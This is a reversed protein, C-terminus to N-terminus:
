LSPYPFNLDIDQQNLPDWGGGRSDTLSNMGTIPWIYSVGGREHASYLQFVQTLKVLQYGADHSRQAQSPNDPYTWSSINFKRRLVSRIDRREEPQPDDSPRGRGSGPRRAATPPPRNPHREQDAPADPRRPAPRPAAAAPSEPPDLPWTLVPRCASDDPPHWRRSGAGGVWAAHTYPGEPFAACQETMHNSVQQLCSTPPALLSFCSILLLLKLLLWILLTTFSFWM